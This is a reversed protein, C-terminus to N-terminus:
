LLVIAVLIFFLLMGLLTGDLWIKCYFGCAAFSIKGKSGSTFPQITTKYFGTGRRGQVGPIANDFVSPVTTTNATLSKDNPNIKDLDVNEMFGFSWEGDLVQLKRTPYKPWFPAESPWSANVSVLLFIIAAFRM